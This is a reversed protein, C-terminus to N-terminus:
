LTDRPDRHFRRDSVTDTVKKGGPNPALLHRVGYRVSAVSLTALAAHARHADVGGTRLAHARASEPGAAPCTEHLESREQEHEQRHRPVALAQRSALDAAHQQEDCETRSETPFEGGVFDDRRPLCESTQRDDAARHALAVSVDSSKCLSTVTKYGRRAGRNRTATRGLAKLARSKLAADFSSGVV